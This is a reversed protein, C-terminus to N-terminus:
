VRHVTWGNRYFENLVGYAEEPTNGYVTIPSLRGNKTLTTKLKYKGNEEIEEIPDPKAKDKM